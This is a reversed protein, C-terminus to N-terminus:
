NKDDKHYFAYPMNGLVLPTPKESFNLEAALSATNQLSSLQNIKKELEINEQHYLNTQNEYYNLEDSLKIGSIFIYINGIILVIFILWIINTLIYKM